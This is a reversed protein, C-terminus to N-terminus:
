QPQDPQSGARRPEDQRREHCIEGHSSLIRVGSSTPANRRRSVCPPNIGASNSRSRPNADRINERGPLRLNARGGRAQTGRLSSEGGTMRKIVARAAEKVTGTRTLGPTTTKREARRPAEPGLLAVHVGRGQQDDNQDNQENAAASVVAATAPVLWLFLGPAFRPQSFKSTGPAIEACRQWGTLRDRKM